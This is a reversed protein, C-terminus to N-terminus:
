SHLHSLAKAINQNFDSLFASRIIDREMLIEHYSKKMHVLEGQPFHACIRHIEKSDVLLDNGATFITVPVTISKIFDPRRIHETLKIAHDLWRWTVNGLALSPNTEIWKRHVLHRDPDKSLIDKETDLPRTKDSYDGGMFVYSNEFLSNMLSVITKTVLSFIRGGPLKIRIMPASFQAHIFSEPYTHMYLLSIAAGMSHAVLALPPMQPLGKERLKEPLIHQILYAMDRMDSEFSDLHRKQPNDPHRFSGGQYSWDIFVCGRGLALQEHMFESYKEGFESLGQAIFILCSPPANEPM